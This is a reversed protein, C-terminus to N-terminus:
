LAGTLSAWRMIPYGITVLIPVVITIVFFALIGVSIGLPLGVFVALALGIILLVAFILIIALPVAIFLAFLESVIAMLIVALSSIVSIFLAAILFLIAGVIGLLAAGIVACVVIFMACLILGPITWVYWFLWLILTIGLFALGGVILGIGGGVFGGIIAGVVIGLIPSVVIALAVFVIAAIFLLIDLGIFLAIAVIALVLAIVISLIIAIAPFFLSSVSLIAVGAIGGIVLGLVGGVLPAFFIEFGVNYAMSLWKSISGPAERLLPPLVRLIEYVDDVTLSGTTLAMVANVFAGYTQSLGLGRAFLRMIDFCWAVDAYRLEGAALRSLANQVISIMGPVLSIFTRISDMLEFINRLLESFSSQSRPEYVSSEVLPEQLAYSVPFFFLLIGIFLAIRV